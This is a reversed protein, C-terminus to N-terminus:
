DLNDIADQIAKEIENIKFPKTFFKSILGTKLARDINDDYAFGTLIFYAINEFKEKAKAIFEIGNMGPMRMDSIVVVIDSKHEYLKDLGQQGSTATIVNYKTSFASDFLFLNMDEDDVYLITTITNDM